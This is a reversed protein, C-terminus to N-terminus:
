ITKSRIKIPISIEANPTDPIRRVKLGMHIAAAILMGNSIYGGTAEEADHKLSYSGKSRGLTGRAVEAALWEAARVFEEAADRKLFDARNEPFNKHEPHRYGYYSLNKESNAMAKIVQEAREIKDLTIEM